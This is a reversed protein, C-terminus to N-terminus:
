GLKQSGPLEYNAYGIDSCVNKVQPIINTDPIKRVISFSVLAPPHAHVIAKIDHCCDYIAKHFPFESSPKHRGEFIGDKRVCVIDSARLSGKDIAAPTVWIDGNEDLISVNGGSTTTLGSKYIKDIILTIQERPHAWLTKM